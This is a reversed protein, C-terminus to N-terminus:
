GSPPSASASPSPPPATSKGCTIAITDNWHYTLADGPQNPPPFQATVPGSHGNPYSPTFGTAAIQHGADSCSMNLLSPVALLPAPEEVTIKVTQGKVVPTGAVPDTSAVTADSVGKPDFTLQVGIGM